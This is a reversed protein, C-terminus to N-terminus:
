EGGKDAPPNKKDGYKEKLKRAQRRMPTDKHELWLQRARQLAREKGTM